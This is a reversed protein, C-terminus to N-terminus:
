QKKYLFETEIIGMRNEKSSYTIQHHLTMNTRDWRGTQTTKPCELAETPTQPVKYCKKVYKVNMPGHM